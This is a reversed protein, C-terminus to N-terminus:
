DSLFPPSCRHCFRSYKRSKPHILIHFYPDSLDISSVREGPILSIRFTNRRSLDIVPRRRQHPKPVLFLRSYFRLSKVNKVREITNKSLLIQICFALAQEKHLAKYGSRILPTPKSIFPLVYCNTIISLVSDSCKTIKWDRRFSCLRGGVPPSLSAKSDNPPRPPIEVGEDGTTPYFVVGPAESIRNGGVRPFHNTVAKLSAGM